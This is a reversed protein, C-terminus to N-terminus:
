GPWSIGPPRRSPLAAGQRQGGDDLFLLDFAAQRREARGPDARHRHRRVQRGHREEAREGVLQGHHDHRDQRLRFQRPVPRHHQRRRDGDGSRQCGSKILEEYLQFTERPRRATSRRSATAHGSRRWQLGAALRVPAGRRGGLFQDHRFGAPRRGQQDAQRRRGQVRGLDQAAGAIGAQKFLAKNYNLAYVDIENPIGYLTGGVIARRSSARRGTRGQGRGAVADPAPRSWSTARGAGAALSRLHRRDDAGDAGGGQSRLTTLLDGFPVARVTVASTPITRPTTRPRRRSCRWRRPRGIPSIPSTSRAAWGLGPMLAAGAAFAAACLPRAFSM